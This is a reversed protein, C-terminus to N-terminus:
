KKLEIRPEFYGTSSNGNISASETILVLSKKDLSEVKFRFESSYVKKLNAKSEIAKFNTEKKMDTIKITLINDEYKYIGKFVLASDKAFITVFSVYNKKFRFDYGMGGGYRLQWNGYLMSLPAAAAAAITFVIVAAIVSKRFNIIM